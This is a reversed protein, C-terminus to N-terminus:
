GRGRELGRPGSACRCGSRRRAVLACLLGSFLPIAGSAAILLALDAGGFILALMLALYLAVAVIETSAARM